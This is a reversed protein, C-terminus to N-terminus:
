YRTRVMIINTLQELHVRFGSVELASEQVHESDGTSSTIKLTNEKIYSASPNYLSKPPHSSAHVYGTDKINVSSLMIQM